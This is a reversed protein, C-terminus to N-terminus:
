ENDVEILEHFQCRGEKAQKFGRDLMARYRARRIAKIPDFDDDVFQKGIEEKFFFWERPAFTIPKSEDIEDPDFTQTEAM